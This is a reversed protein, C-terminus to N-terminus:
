HWTLLAGHPHLNAPRYTGRHHGRLTLTQHRIRPHPHQRLGSSQRPQGPPDGPQEGTMTMNPPSM